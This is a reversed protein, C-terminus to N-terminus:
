IKKAIGYHKQFWRNVFPIKIIRKAIAKVMKFFLDHLFSITALSYYRHSHCSLVINSFHNENIFHIIKKIEVNNGTFGPLDNKTPSDIIAWKRGADSVYLYDECIREPFNVMVDILDPYLEQVEKSRFFDRNSYYGKRELLPNGHQCITCFEFGRDNLWKKNKDFISIAKCLNGKTQDMVDHHYSVIHGLSQIKKLIKINKDNLLYAQFYFTSSLCYKNEIKAIALAKKPSKEVDHKIMFFPKCLGNKSEVLFTQKYKLSVAKCLQKFSRYTPM